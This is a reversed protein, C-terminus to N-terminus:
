AAKSSCFGKPHAFAVSRFDFWDGRDAVGEGDEKARGVAPLFLRLAGDLQLPYWSKWSSSQHLILESTACPPSRFNRWTICWIFVRSNCLFLYPIVLQLYSGFSHFLYFHSNLFTINLAYSHFSIQFQTFITSSKYMKKKMKLFKKEIIKRKYSIIVRFDHKKLKVNVKVVQCFSLRAGIFIQICIIISFQKLLVIIQRM